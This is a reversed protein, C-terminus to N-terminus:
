VKLLDVIITPQLIDFPHLNDGYNSYELRWTDPRWDYYGFGYSWRPSGGNLKQSVTTRFYLNGFPSWQLTASAAVDGSLPKSLGVTASLKNDRLIASDIKHSASLVAKDLALGDGRKLPGWNNLQISTTGPRWNSYGGGWSYTLEDSNVYKLSGRVFWNDEPTWSVNLKAAPKSDDLPATYLFTTTLNLTEAAEQDSNKGSIMKNIVPTLDGERGTDPMPVFHEPPIMLQRADTIKKQQLLAQEVALREAQLREQEARLEAIRRKEAEARQLALLRNKEQAARQQRQKAAEAEAAERTLRQREQMDRRKKEEAAALLRQREKIDQRRKEEAARRALLWQQAEIKLRERQEALLRQQQEIQQMLQKQKTLYAAQQEDQQQQLQRIQPELESLQQKLILIKHSVRQLLRGPWSGPEDEEVRPIECYPYWLFPYPEQEPPVPPPYFTRTLVPEEDNLPYIRGSDPHPFCRQRHVRHLFAEYAYHPIYIDLLKPVYRSTALSRVFGWRQLGNETLILPTAMKKKLSQGDGLHLNYFGGDDNLLPCYNWHLAVREVLETLEPFRQLTRYLTHLAIDLSGAYLTAKNELAGLEEDPWSRGESVDGLLSLLLAEAETTAQTCYLTELKQLLPSLPRNARNYAAVKLFYGTDPASVSSPNRSFGAPRIFMQQQVESQLRQSHLQYFHRQKVLDARRSLLEALVQQVTTHQTKHQQEAVVLASQLQQLWISVQETAISGGSEAAYVLRHSQFLLLLLILLAVALRLPTWGARIRGPMNIQQCYSSVPWAFM